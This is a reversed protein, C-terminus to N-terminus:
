RSSPCTSFNPTPTTVSRCAHRAPNRAGATHKDEATTAERRRLRMILIKIVWLKSRYVDHNGKLETPACISTLYKDLWIPSVKAHTSLGDWICYGWTAVYGYINAPGCFINFWANAVSCATCSWRAWGAPAPLAPSLAPHPMSRM